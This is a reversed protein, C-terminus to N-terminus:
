KVLDYVDVIVGIITLIVMTGIDFTTLTMDALKYLPLAIFVTCVVIICRM